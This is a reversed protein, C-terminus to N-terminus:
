HVSVADGGRPLRAGIGCGAAGRSARQNTIHARPTESTSRHRSIVMNRIGHKGLFVASSAGAPGAGVVLVDTEITAGMVVETLEESALMPTGM